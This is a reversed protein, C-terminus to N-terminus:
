AAPQRARVTAAVIAHVAVALARADRATPAALAPAPIPDHVILKVDAPETRLRGKPM